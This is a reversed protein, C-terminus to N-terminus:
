RGAKRANKEMQAAYEEVWDLLHDEQEVTLTDWDQPRM